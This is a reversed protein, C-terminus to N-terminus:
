DLKGAIVPVAPRESNVPVKQNGAGKKNGRSNTGKVKASGEGKNAENEKGQEAYKKIFASLLMNFDDSESGMLEKLKGISISRLDEVTRGDTEVINDTVVTSGSRPVGFTDVLLKRVEDSFRMWQHPWVQSNLVDNM